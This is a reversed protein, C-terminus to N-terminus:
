RQLKSLEAKLESAATRPSDSRCIEGLVAIGAIATASLEHINAATIGGIALSPWPSLTVRRTTEEIGIAPGADAKSTTAWVPGVSLYDIHVDIDALSIASAGLFSDEGIIERAQKLSSSGEGIHVGHAGTLELLHPRDNLFFSVNTGILAANIRLALAAFDDDELSMARLQVTTVGGAVAERVIEVLDRGKAVDFDAIFYLSIDLM